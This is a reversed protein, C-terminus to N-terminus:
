GCKRAEARSISYRNKGEELRDKYFTLEMEDGRRKMVIRGEFWGGLWKTTIELTSDDLYRAYSCNWGIEPLVNDTYFPHHKGDFWAEFVAYGNVTFICKESDTQLCFETFERKKDPHYFCSFFNYGGPSVSIWPDGDGGIVTYKGDFNGEPVCVSCAEREPISLGSEFAKLEEWAEPDLPLEEEGIEDLLYESLIDLTIQPGDPCLGGEHLAVAIKKEPWILGFQGQGGDFRYLGSRRSNWLQFGYGNGYDGDQGPTDIQRSMAQEMWDRAIIQESEM